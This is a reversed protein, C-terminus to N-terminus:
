LHSITTLPQSHSTTHTATHNAERKLMGEGSASTVPGGKDWTHSQALDRM